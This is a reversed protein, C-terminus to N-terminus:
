ISSDDEDTNNEINKSEKIIDTISNKLFKQAKETNETAIFLRFEYHSFNEYQWKEYMKDLFINLRDKNTFDSIFLEKKYDEISKIKAYGFQTNYRYTKVWQDVFKLLDNTAHHYKNFKSVKILNYDYKLQKSDHKIYSLQIYNEIQRGLSSIFIDLKNYVAALRNITSSFIPKEYFRKKRSFDYGDPCAKTSLIENIYNKLNDIYENKSNYNRLLVGAMTTPNNWIVCALKESAELPNLKFDDNFNKEEENNQM